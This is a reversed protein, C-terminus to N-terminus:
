ERLGSADPRGNRGENLHQLAHVGSGVTRSLELPQRQTQNGRAGPVTQGLRHATTYSCIAFNILTDEMDM